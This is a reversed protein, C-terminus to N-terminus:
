RLGAFHAFLYVSIGLIFAVWPILLTAGVFAGARLLWVAITERDEEDIPISVKPLKFSPLKIIPLRLQWPKRPPPPRYEPEPRPIIFIPPRFPEM